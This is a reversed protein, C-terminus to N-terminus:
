PELTSEWYIYSKWQEPTHPKSLSVAFLPLMRPMKPTKILFMGAQEPTKGGKKNNCKYCCTVINDWLTKGGQCRPIVHDFTLKEIQNRPATWGCYQCTFQDRLFVNKRSFRVRSKVPAFRKLVIVAPVKFVLYASRVEKDEYEELVYVKELFLLEMAKQWSIIKIPEYTVNLLLTDASMM